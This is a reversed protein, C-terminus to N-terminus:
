SPCGRVIIHPWHIADISVKVRDQWLEAQDAKSQCREFPALFNKDNDAAATQLTEGNGIILIDDFVARVGDFGDIAQDLRQQFIEGVQSIGFPMPKWKFRGFPTNVTTLTSSKDDQQVLQELHQRLPQKLSKPPIQVAPVEPIEEFHLEPGLNGLGEFFDHYTEKIEAITLEIHDSMPQDNNVQNIHNTTVVRILEMQQVASTAENKRQQSM